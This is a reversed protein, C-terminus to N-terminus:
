VVVCALAVIVVVEVLLEVALWNAVTANAMVSVPNVMVGSVVSDPGAGVLRLASIVVM